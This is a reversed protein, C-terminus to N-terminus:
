FSVVDEAGSSWTLVVDGDLVACETLPNPDLAREVTASLAVLAVVVTEGIGADFALM